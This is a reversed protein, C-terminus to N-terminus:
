EPAGLAQSCWAEISRAEQAIRDFKTLLAVAKLLEQVDEKWTSDNLTQQLISAAERYYELARDNADLNRYHDGLDIRAKVNGPDIELIKEYCGRAALYDASSILKKASHELLDMEKLEFLNGKLRLSGTDLPNEKLLGELLELAADYYGQIGLGWAEELRDTRSTATRAPNDEKNV